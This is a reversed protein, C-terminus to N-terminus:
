CILVIVSMFLIRKYNLSGKTHQDKLTLDVKVSFNFFLFSKILSLRFTFSKCSLYIYVFIKLTLLRFLAVIRRVEDSCRRSVIAKYDIQRLLRDRKKLFSPYKEKWMKGLAWPFIEYKIEEEDEEM